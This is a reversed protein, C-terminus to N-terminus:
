RKRKIKWVVKHCLMQLSQLEFSGCCTACHHFKPFWYLHSLVMLAVDHFCRPQFKSYHTNRWLYIFSQFSWIRRCPVSSFSKVLTANWFSWFNEVEDSLLVEFILFTAVVFLTWWSFYLNHIFAVHQLCWLSQFIWSMHCCAYSLDLIIHWIVVNLCIWSQLM